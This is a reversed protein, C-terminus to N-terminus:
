GASIGSIRSAAAASLHSVRFFVERRVEASVRGAPMVVMGVVAVVAGGGVVLPVPRGAVVVVVVVVVMEPLESCRGRSAPGRERGPRLLLLLPQSHQGQGPANAEGDPPGDHPAALGHRGHPKRLHHRAPHNERAPRDRPIRPAARGAEDASPSHRATPAPHPM